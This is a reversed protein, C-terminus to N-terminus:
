TKAWLPCNDTNIYTFGINYVKFTLNGKYVSTKSARSTFTINGGSHLLLHIESFVSRITIM